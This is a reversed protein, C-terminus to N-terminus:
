LTSLRRWHEVLPILGGWKIRQNTVCTSMARTNSAKWPSRVHSTLAAEKAPVGGQLLKSRRKRSTKWEVWLWQRIRRRIWKDLATLQAQVGQAKAFYNAWGALYANLQGLMLKSPIRRVRCTLDRVKSKMRKLSQVSIRVYIKEHIKV